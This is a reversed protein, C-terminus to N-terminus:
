DIFSLGGFEGLGYDGVDFACKRTFPSNPDAYPVAMEVASLRHLVPRLVGGDQYGVNHLVLGERYNFSVRMSWKQWTVHNGDVTFSVGEPQVVNLPKLDTRSPKECLEHHYNVNKTPVPPSPSTSTTTSDGYPKDIQVVKKENLDVIPLFDLPHAYANDMPMSRLYMFTQILRRHKLHAPPLHVSWPDCCVLDM